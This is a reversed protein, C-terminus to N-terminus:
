EGYLWGEWRQRLRAWDKRVLPHLRDLDLGVLYGVAVPRYDRDSGAILQGMMTLMRRQRQLQADVAPCSLLSWDLLFGLCDSHTLLRLREPYSDQLGLVNEALDDVLPLENAEMQQLLGRGCTWLPMSRHQYSDGGRWVGDLWDKIFQWCRVRLPRRLPPALDPRLALQGLLQLALDRQQADWSEPNLVGDGESDRSLAWRLRAQPTDQSRLWLLRLSLAQILAQVQSWRPLCRGLAELLSQLTARAPQEQALVQLMVKEARGAIEPDSSSQVIEWWLPGQEPFRQCGRDLEEVLRERWGPGLDACAILWAWSRWIELREEGQAARLFHQLVSDSPARAAAFCHKAWSELRSPFARSGMDADREVRALLRELVGPDLSVLQGIAWRDDPEELLPIEQELFGTLANRLEEDDEGEENVQLPRDLHALLRLTRRSGAVVEQVARRYGLLQLSEDDQQLAQSLTWHRLDPGLRLWWAEDLLKQLASSGLQALIQEVRVLTQGSLLPQCALRLSQELVQGDPESQGPLQVLLWCSLLREELSLARELRRRLLPRLDVGAGAWLLTLQALKRVVEPSASAVEALCEEWWGLILTPQQLWRTTLEEVLDLIQSRLGQSEWLIQLLGVLFPLDWSGQGGQGFQRRLEQLAQQAQSLEGSFLFELHRGIDADLYEHVLHAVERTVEGRRRRLALWLLPGPDRGQQRLQRFASRLHELIRSTDEADAVIRWSEPWNEPPRASMGAMALSVSQAAVPLLGQEQSDMWVEDSSLVEWGSVGSRPRLDLGLPNLEALLRSRTAPLEMWLPSMLLQPAESLLGELAAWSLRLGRQHLALLRTLHRPGAQLGAGALRQQVDPLSLCGELECFSEHLM